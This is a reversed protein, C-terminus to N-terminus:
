KLNKLHEIQDIQIIAKKAPKTGVNTTTSAAFRFLVRGKISEFIASHPYIGEINTNQVIKTIPKYLNTTIKSLIVFFIM